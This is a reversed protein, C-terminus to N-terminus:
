AHTLSVSCDEDDEPWEPWMEDDTLGSDSIEPREVGVADAAALIDEESMMESSVLVAGTGLEAKVVLERRVAELDEENSFVVAFYEIDKADM